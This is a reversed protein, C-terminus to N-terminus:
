GGAPPPPPAVSGPPPPPAVSGPAPPPPPTASGPAPPPPPAVSGPAPPPPPTASGAGPPPPPAAAGPPPPAAGPVPPPPAASTKLGAVVEPLQAVIAALEGLIRERETAAEPHPTGARELYDLLGLDRLLDNAKSKQQTSDITTNVSSVAQNATKKLDDLFGM